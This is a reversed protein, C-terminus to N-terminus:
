ALNEKLVIEALALADDLARHKQALPKDLKMEYLETMRLRRGKLHFYEQVTCVTTAPWPFSDCGCRKLEFELMLKDFPANHAILVDAGAFANILESLIDAFLPKGALDEDKLGTIKTIVAPLTCEPQIQWAHECVILGDEIRVLGIEIIRPQKALDVVAPLPLGTTETDFCLSITM